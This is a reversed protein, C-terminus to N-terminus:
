KKYVQAFRKTFQITDTPISESVIMSEGEPILEPDGGFQDRNDKYLQPWMFADRYERQAIKWYCDNKKIVITKSKQEPVVAAVVDKVINKHIEVVDNAVIKIQQKTCSLTCVALIVILIRFSQRYM